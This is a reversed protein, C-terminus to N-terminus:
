CVVAQELTSVTVGAGVDGLEVVVGVMVEEGLVVLAIRGAVGVVGVGVADGRTGPPLARRCAPQGDRSKRGASKRIVSGGAVNDGLHAGWETADDTNRGQDSRQAADRM